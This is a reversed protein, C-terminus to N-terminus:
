GRRRLWLSNQLIWLYTATAGASYAVVDRMTLGLAIAVPALLAVVLLHEALRRLLLRRMTAPRKDARTDETSSASATASGHLHCGPKTTAPALTLMM